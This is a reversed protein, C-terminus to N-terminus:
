GNVYTNTGEKDEGRILYLRHDKYFGERNLKTSTPMFRMTYGARRNPSRNVNSGHIIYPEHLSFEGMRLELDVAKSEDVENDEMGLHLVSQTTDKEGHPLPGLEQTGPLVRLCGNEITSNDIALWLTLVKMPELPWFIGDQHWPVGHGLKAPKALLHSAFLVINPGIFKEIVNLLKEHGCLALMAPDHDHIFNMREPWEDPGLNSIMEDVHARIAALEEDAFVSGFKAYGERYYTDVDAQTVHFPDIVTTQM